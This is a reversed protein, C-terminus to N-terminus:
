KQAERMKRHLEEKVRDKIPRAASSYATNEKELPDKAYDFLEEGICAGSADVYETYRHDATRLSNAMAYSKLRDHWMPARHSIATDKWVHCPAEGLLPIFDEGELFGPKGLGALTCLSPYVDVHETVRSV